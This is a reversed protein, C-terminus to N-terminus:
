GLNRNWLCYLGKDIIGPGLIFYFGEISLGLCCRNLCPILGFIWLIEGDCRYVLCLVLIWCIWLGLCPHNWPFEVILNEYMRVWIRIMILLPFSRFLSLTMIVLFKIYYNCLLVLVRWFCNRRCRCSIELCNRIRIFFEGVGLGILIRFSKQLCLSVIRPILIM